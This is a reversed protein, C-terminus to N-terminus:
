LQVENHMIARLAHTEEQEKVCLPTFKWKGKNPCALFLVPRIVLFM